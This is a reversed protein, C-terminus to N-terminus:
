PPRSSLSKFTNLQQEAKKRENIAEKGIKGQVNESLKRKRGALIMVGKLNSFFLIKNRANKTFNPARRKYLM